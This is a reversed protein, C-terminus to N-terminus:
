NTKFSEKISKLLYIKQREILFMLVIQIYLKIKHKTWRRARIAKRFFKVKAAMMNLPFQLEASLQEMGCIIKYIYFYNQAVTIDYKSSWNTGEAEVYYRYASMIEPLIAINGYKMLFLILIRDGPMWQYKLIKKLDEKKLESLFNKIMFTSTQGPLNYNELDEKKFESVEASERANRIFKNGLDVIKYNHAAASYRSNNELFEVMIQLKNNDTWYDDGELFAIYEGKCRRLCDVFNKAAGINKNRYIARMKGKFKEEYKQIIEKSQDTSCDEGIILEYDFSTSQMLISDLAQGIFREHNYVLMVISVKM